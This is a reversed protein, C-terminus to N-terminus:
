LKSFVVQGQGVSANGGVQIRGSPDFVQKNKKDEIFTYFRAGRPVLEEYWLNASQGNELYNRAIVPLNETLEKFLPYPLLALNKGLIPEFLALDDKTFEASDNEAEWDELVIETGFGPQAFVVPRHRVIAALKALRTKLTANLTFGFNECRDLFDQVLEPTTASFFPIVNSRVPYAILWADYFNYHGPKSKENPDEEKPSSGFITKMDNHNVFHERLAGKLGSGHIIPCGNAVDRQVAKDIVGYNENGSGAHLNSRCELLFCDTTAM